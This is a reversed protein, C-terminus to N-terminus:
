RKGRREKFLIFITVFILIVLLSLIIVTLEIPKKNYTTETYKQYISEKFEARKRETADIAAIFKTWDPLDELSIPKELNIWPKTAMVRRTYGTEPDIGGGTIHVDSSLAQRRRISTKNEAWARQYTIDFEEPYFFDPLGVVVNEEIKCSNVGREMYFYGNRGWDAGWSNKIIWYKQGKEEGWGVIEIAHGGVPDKQGNWKYITNIPDFLYFDSYVIMGTSVPGWLFIDHRINYESGGDAPIGPIAYFHKCRYFKAPTGYEEGTYVDIAVDSCMDGITGSIDTCLPLQNDKNYKDLPTYEISEGIAKDYPICAMTNTGITFMYRWADYITNGTCSSKTLNAVNIKNLKSLDTDPHKIDFEKGKFDCLILKSPSFQLHLFGRSQINFRDALTSTSAFAWCSGCKGQDMVPSMAGNWAERGDFSDPIKIDTRVPSQMPIKNHAMKTANNTNRLLTYTPRNSIALKLSASLKLSGDPEQM